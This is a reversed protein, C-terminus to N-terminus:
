EKIDVQKLIKALWKDMPKLDKISVGNPYKNKLIIAVIPYTSRVNDATYIKNM